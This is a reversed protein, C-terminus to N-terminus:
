EYIISHIDLHYIVDKREVVVNIRKMLEENDRIHNLLERTPNVATPHGTNEFMTLDGNTDGYSYCQSLDLDYLQEMEHIAKKKSISDWMPTIAGTYIGNEDTHYVTGRWNDFLYKEAM